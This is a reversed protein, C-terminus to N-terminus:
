TLLNGRIIFRRRLEEKPLFVLSNSNGLTQLELNTNAQDMIINLSVMNRSTSILGTTTNLSVTSHGTSVQAMLNLSVMSHNIRSNSILLEM